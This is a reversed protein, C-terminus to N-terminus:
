PRRLSNCFDRRGVEFRIFGEGRKEEVVEELRRLVEELNGHRLLKGESEEADVKLVCWWGWWARRVRWGCVGRSYRRLGSEAGRFLAGWGYQWGTLGIAGIHDRAAVELGRYSWIGHFYEYRVWRLLL